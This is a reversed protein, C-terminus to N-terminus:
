KAKARRLAAKRGDRRLEPRLEITFKFEETYKKGDPGKYDRYLTLRNIAWRVTKWAAFSKGLESSSVRKLFEGTTIWERLRYYEDRHQIKVKGWFSIRKIWGQWNFDFSQPELKPSALDEFLAGGSENLSDYIFDFGTDMNM